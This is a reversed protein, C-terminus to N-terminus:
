VDFRLLTEKWDTGELDVKCLKNFEGPAGWVPIAESKTPEKEYEFLYGNKDVAVYPMTIVIGIGFYQVKKGLRKM